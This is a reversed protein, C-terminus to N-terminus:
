IVGKIFLSVCLLINYLLSYSFIHISVWDVAMVCDYLNISYKKYKLQSHSMKIARSWMNIANVNVLEKLIIGAIWFM